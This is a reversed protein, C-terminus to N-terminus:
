PDAQAQEASGTQPVPYGNPLLVWFRGQQKMRGAEAGAAAGSGWFFDARLPGSIAGGTDQALTLEQLPRDSHPWTTELYVPSGLPIYRRDIAISRRATLPVGLAGLPGALTIPLERFFVYSENHNLVANLQQPHKHAWAKIDQMSANSLTLDGRKILYRGVSRYPYGNQDAYGVRIRGGGNLKIQGSGQIQLFFLDVANDVWAIAKGGLDGKGQEIGARDYYPVVKRGDLRGRLRLHKLQPYVSSLDIDLLDDPVGYVPYRYRASRTRSGHLVPEYYGTVLGTEGDESSSLQYAVFNSEFYSRIANDNSGDVRQAATCAAKWQDKSKLTGCSKLWAGWAASVADSRWGPLASWAVRSFTVVPPQHPQQSPPCVTATAAKGAPAPPQQPVSQCATLAMTCAMIAARVILRLNSKGPIRNFDPM